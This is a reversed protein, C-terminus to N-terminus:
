ILASTMSDLSHSVEHTEPHLLSMFEGDNRHLMHIIHNWVSHTPMDSATPVHAQAQLYNGLVTLCM